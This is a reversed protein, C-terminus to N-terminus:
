WRYTTNIERFKRIVTVKFFSNQFESSQKLFTFKAIKVRVRGWGEVCVCM